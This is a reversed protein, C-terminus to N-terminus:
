NKPDFQSDYPVGTLRIDGDQPNLKQIQAATLKFENAQYKGWQFCKHCIIWDKQLM